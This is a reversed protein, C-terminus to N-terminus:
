IASWLLVLLEFLSSFNAIFSLLAPNISLNLHYNEKYQKWMTM